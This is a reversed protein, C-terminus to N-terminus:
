NESRDSGYIILLIFCISVVLMDDDTISLDSNEEADSSEILLTLIDKESIGNGSAVAAKEADDDSVVLHDVTKQKAITDRKKAIIERIMSLFINLEKHVDQRKPFMWLYERDLKPFFFFLPDIVADMLKEYRDAYEAKPDQISNFEFDLYFRGILKNHIKFIAVLVKGFGANGLVDLAYRKIFDGVDINDAKGIDVATNKQISEFLREAYNGFLQIPM